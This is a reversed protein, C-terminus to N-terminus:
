SEVLYWGGFHHAGGHGHALTCRHSCRGGNHSVYNEAHDCRRYGSNGYPEPENANRCASTHGESPLQGCCFYPQENM